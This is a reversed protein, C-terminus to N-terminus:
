VGLRARSEYLDYCQTCLGQATTWDAFDSKIEDVIANQSSTWTRTDEYSTFHCLPCRLGGKGLSKNVRDNRALRVLGAQTWKKKGVFEAIIEAKRADDLYSFSREFNQKLESLPILPEHDGEILRSSVYLDWLLRFRERILNNEVGGVGGLEPKPSYHFAPDLMDSVHMLEHRLFRGVYSPNLIQPVRLSMVLRLIPPEVFLDAAEQNKRFTSKVLVQLDSSQLLPFERIVDTFIKEIELSHFHKLYFTRFKSEQDAKSVTEYLRSREEHFLRVPYKKGSKEIEQIRLFVAEEVFYPEFRIVLARGQPQSCVLRM